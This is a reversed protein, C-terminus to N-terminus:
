GIAVERRGEQVGTRHRHDVQAPEGLVQDDQAAVFVSEELQGIREARAAAHHGLLLIRIRQLEHAALRPARDTM